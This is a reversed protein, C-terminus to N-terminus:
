CRKRIWAVTFGPVGNVRWFNKSDYNIHSTVGSHANYIIVDPSVLSMDMWGDRHDPVGTTTLENLMSRYNCNTDFKNTDSLPVDIWVGVGGGAPWATRCDGGICLQPASVSQSAVVTLAAVSGGAFLSAGSGLMLDANRTQPLNGTTLPAAVNGLPPDQTPATWATVYQFTSIAIAGLIIGMLGFSLNKYTIM